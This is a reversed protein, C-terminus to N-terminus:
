HSVRNGKSRNEYRPIIQLNWPVHLGCVFGGCLPVIHDVEHSTGTAATLAKAAGYIAALEKADVWKPTAQLKQARRRATAANVRGPNNKLWTSSRV